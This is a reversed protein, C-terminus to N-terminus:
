PRQEEAYGKEGRVRCFYEFHNGSVIALHSFAEILKSTQLRCFCKIEQMRSLHFTLAGGSWNSRKEAHQVFHCHLLV